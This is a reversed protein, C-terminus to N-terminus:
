ELSSYQINFEPPPWAGRSLQRGIVDRESGDSENGENRITRNEAVTNLIPRM